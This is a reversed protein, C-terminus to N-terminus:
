SGIREVQFFERIAAGSTNLNGGSTQFVNIELYDGASLSYTDTLSAAPEAAANASTEIQSVNTGNLAIAMIRRGSANVLFGSNATVRYYGGLGTPITIRTNNTVNDHFGDTDFTENAFALKTDTSNSITQASSAYVRCGTFNGTRAWKLGTTEASDAVLITGNTGVALRSFTNDATGAVLDGKADIATAMSNTITVDGSSGGGSIGTGATVATIDGVPAGLWAAGSYYVLADTDKLFAYQGEQPSTIAADRAAANAFVLVGQMLYGNTDAATLVEGTTFTKFGLGAAM